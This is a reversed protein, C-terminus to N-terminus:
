HPLRFQIRDRLAESRSIASFFKKLSGKYTAIATNYEGVMESFLAKALMGKGTGAEGLVLVSNGTRVAECVKLFKLGQKIPALFSESEEM